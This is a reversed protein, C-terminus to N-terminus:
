RYYSRTEPRPFDYNRYYSRRYTDNPVPPENLGSTARTVPNPVNMTNPLGCGPLPHSANCSHLVQLYSAIHHTATIEPHQLQPLSLPSHDETKTSAIGGLEDVESEEMKLPGLAADSRSIVTAETYDIMMCPTEDETKALVIQPCLVNSTMSAGVAALPPEKDDALLRARRTALFGGGIISTMVAVACLLPISSLVPAELLFAM